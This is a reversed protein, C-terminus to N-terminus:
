QVGTQDAKAGADEGEWRISFLTAPQPSIWAQVYM